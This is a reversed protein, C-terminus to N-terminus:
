SEDHREETRMLARARQVKAADRKLV